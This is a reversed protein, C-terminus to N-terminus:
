SWKPLPYTPGVDLLQRDLEAQEELEELDAQRQKELDTEAAERETQRGLENGGSGFQTGATLYSFCNGM